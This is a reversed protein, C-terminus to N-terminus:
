KHMQRKVYYLLFTGGILFSFIIEGPKPIIDINNVESTNVSNLLQKDINKEESNPSTASGPNNIDSMQSSNSSKPQTKTNPAVTKQVNPKNTNNPVHFKKEHAKLPLTQFLTIGFLVSSIIIRCIQSKM